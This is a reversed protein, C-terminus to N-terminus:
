VSVGWLCWRPRPPSNIAAALSSGEIDGCFVGPLSFIATEIDNANLVAISQESTWDPLAAGAVEKLNCEDRLDAGVVADTAEEGHSVRELGSSRLPIIAM